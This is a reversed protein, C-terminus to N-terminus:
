PSFPPQVEFYTDLATLGSWAPDDYSLKALGSMFRLKFLLWRFLWVAPRSGNALFLAIFGSELLMYDWQFNMLLQGAHFLSLYLMFLLLLSLRPRINLFLLASLLM